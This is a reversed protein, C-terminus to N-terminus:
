LASGMFLSSLLVTLVLLTIALYVKDGEIWFLVVTLAVRVIPLAVLLVLGTAIWAEPNRAMLGAFIQSPYYLVPRPMFDIPTHQYFALLLGMALFFACLLVGYRLVNSILFEARSLRVDSRAKSM